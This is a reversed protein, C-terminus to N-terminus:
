TFIPESVKAEAGDGGASMTQQAWRYILRHFDVSAWPLQRCSVSALIPIILSAFKLKRYIDSRSSQRGAGMGERLCQQRFGLTIHPSTHGRFGVSAPPLQRFRASALIPIFASLSNLKLYIEAWSSQSGTVWGCVNSDAGWCYILFHYGM